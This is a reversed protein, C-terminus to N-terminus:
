QAEDKRIEIKADNAQKPGSTTRGESVAKELLATLNQVVDPHESAVNKTEGADDALIFVINVKAAPNPPNDAAAAIGTAALLLLFACFTKM